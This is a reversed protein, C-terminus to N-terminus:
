EKKDSIAKNIDKLMDKLQKEEFGHAMAGQQVTEHFAVHCGVCHLGYKMMVQAAEPHHSIVEGLTMDKTIKDSKKDEKKSTM